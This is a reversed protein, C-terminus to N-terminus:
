LPSIPQLTSAKLAANVLTMDALVTSTLRKELHIDDAWQHKWKLKREMMAAKLAAVM